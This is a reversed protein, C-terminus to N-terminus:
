AGEVAGALDSGGGPRRDLRGDLLEAVPRVRDCAAEDRLRGLRDSQQQWIDGIGEICRQDAADLLVREALAVGHEEARRFAVCLAFLLVQSEEARLLDVAGQDVPEAQRGVPDGREDFVAERDDAEIAVDFRVRNREDLHVVPEASPEGSLVQDPEAV